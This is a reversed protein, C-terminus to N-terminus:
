LTVQITSRRGAGRDAAYRRTKELVALQEALMARQVITMGRAWTFNERAQQPLSSTERGSEPLTRWADVLANRYEGALREALAYDAALVASRFAIAIKDLTEPMKTVVPRPRSCVRCSLTRTKCHRSSRMPRPWKRM